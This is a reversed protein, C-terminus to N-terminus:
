ESRYDKITKGVKLCIFVQHAQLMTIELKIVQVQFRAPASKMQLFLQVILRSMKRLSVVIPHLIEWGVAQNLFKAGVKRTRTSHQESTIDTIIADEQQDDSKMVLTTGEIGMETPDNTAVDGHDSAQDDSILDEEVM